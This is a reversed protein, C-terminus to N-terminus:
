KSTPHESGIQIEGKLTAEVVLSNNSSLAPTIESPIPSVAALIPPVSQPLVLNGLLEFLTSPVMQEINASIKKM